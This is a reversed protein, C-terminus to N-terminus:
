KDAKGAFFTWQLVLGIFTILGLSILVGRPSAPLWSLHEPMLQALLSFTSFLMLVSGAAASQVSAALYPGILGVLLGIVAAVLGTVMVGGRVGAGAEAWWEGVSERYYGAMGRLAELVASGIRAAVEQDITVGETGAETGGAEEGDEGSEIGLVAAVGERIPDVLVDLPIEVTLEEGDGSDAGSLGSVEAAPADVGEDGPVQQWLLVAGSAALGFIVAGTIAMWVRFLLAALLAGAIGAGIVMALMIGGSDVLVEGLVVGGIGGLILGSIACVPRALKRGLLWLVLGAGLALAPALVGVSGLKELMEQLQEQGM